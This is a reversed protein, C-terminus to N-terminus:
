VSHEMCQRTSGADAPIIRAEVFGAIGRDQAGRMRPSSGLAYDEKSQRARHEGCGRPHDKKLHMKLSMCMTSGADAPIIGPVRFGPDFTALAGRMRPSSGQWYGATSKLREHEGCGRPHDQGYAVLVHEGDTSGADAPIIRRGTRGDPRGLLAGRM